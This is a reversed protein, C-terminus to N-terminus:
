AEKWFLKRRETPKSLKMGFEEDVKMKIENDM